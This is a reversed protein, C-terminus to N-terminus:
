LLCLQAQAVVRVAKNKENCHYTYFSITKVIEDLFDEAEEDIRSFQHLICLGYLVGERVVAHKSDTDSCWKDLIDLLNALADHRHLKPVYGLYEAALTLWNFDTAEHIEQFFLEPSDTARKKLDKELSDM